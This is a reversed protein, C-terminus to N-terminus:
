VRSVCVHFFSTNTVSEKFYKTESRGFLQSYKIKLLSWLNALARIRSFIDNHQLAGHDYKSDMIRVEGMLVKIRLFTVLFRKVGM